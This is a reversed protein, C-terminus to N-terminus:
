RHWVEIVWRGVEWELHLRSRAPPESHLSLPTVKFWLLFPHGPLLHLAQGQQTGRLDGTFVYIFGLFFGSFPVLDLPLVQARTRSAAQGGITWPAGPGRSAGGSPLWGVRLGRSGLVRLDAQKEAGEARVHAHCM